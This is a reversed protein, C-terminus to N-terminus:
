GKNGLQESVQLLVKKYVNETGAVMKGVTFNEQVHRQGSEIYSAMRDPDKWLKLIAESLETVALPMVLDGTKGHVLVDPIGGTKSGISPVGAALADILATCLGELRSPMVFLDLAAYCDAIDDRWGALVVLDPHKAQLKELRDREEGDGIYVVKGSGLQERVKVMAEALIWPAKHDVLAGVFGVLPGQDDQTWQERLEEGQGGTVRDTNIGSYVIDIRNAPVGGEVLVQKVGSSIAIYHVSKSLYKRRSLPNKRLSFDVRRTVVIPIRGGFAKVALTHSNATHAHIIDPSFSKVLSRLKLGAGWNRHNLRWALCPIGDKELARHLEDNERCLVLQEHGLNRLGQTLLQVQREGGRFGSELNIHLIRLKM